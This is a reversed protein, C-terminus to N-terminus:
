TTLFLGFFVVWVALMYHWYTALLSTQSSLLVVASILRSKYMVVALAIIGGLLHIGHIGTILYFFTNAPNSAVFYDLSILQQWVILQGILFVLAFLGGVFLGLKYNDRDGNKSAKSAWYMGLSAATLSGSNVWLLRPDPLSQWDDFNMRFVYANIVFLFLITIVTLLLYIFVQAHSLGLVGPETTTKQESMSKPLKNMRFTKHFLTM